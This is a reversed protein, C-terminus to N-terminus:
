GNIDINYTGANYVNDSILIKYRYSGIVESYETFPIEVGNIDARLFGERLTEGIVIIIHQSDGISVNYAGRMGNDTPILNSQDMVDQYTDGAGLWFSAFHTVVKERVYPIGLITAECRINATAQTRISTSISRLDDGEVLLEDGNYIAVHDFVEGPTSPHAEITVTSNWEGVTYDPSTTLTIGLLQEGTIQELKAWINNIALTLTKQCIGIHPDNGFKTSLAMGSIELSDIQNQLDDAQNKVDHTIFHVTDPSVHNPNIANDAIKDPIIAGDAIKGHTVSSDAIHRGQVAEDAIKEGTVANQAIKEPTIAGNDIDDTNTLPVKHGLHLDERFTPM